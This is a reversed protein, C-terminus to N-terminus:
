PHMYNVDPFSTHWPSFQPRSTLGNLEEGLISFLDAAAIIGLLQGQKGVVPVRKVGSSQMLKILEFIGCTPECTLPNYTMVSQVLVKDPSEKLRYARMIIDRGTLIGVPYLVDHIKEVVVVDDVGYDRMVDIAEEVSADKTVTAVNKIYLDKISM